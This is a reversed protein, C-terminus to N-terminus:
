CSKMARSSLRRSKKTSSACSSTRSLPRACVVSKGRGTLWPTDGDVCLRERCWSDWHQHQKASLL